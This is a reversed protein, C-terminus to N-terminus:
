LRVRVRESKQPEGPKEDTVGYCTASVSHNQAEESGYCEPAQLPQSEGPFGCFDEPQLPTVTPNLPSPLYRAFADDFQRRRYGKALGDEFRITDPSIHDGALM